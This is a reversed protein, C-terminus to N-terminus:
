ISNNILELQHINKQKGVINFSNKKFLDLSETNDEAISCHLMKMNLVSFCYDTLLALAETAYGNRRYKKEILIGLGAKSKDTDYDFLDICGAEENSQSTDEPLISIMLRLQKDLYIDKQQTIYAEMEDKTFSTKTNSVEWNETNNEWRLLLAIDKATVSRLAIKKGQINM